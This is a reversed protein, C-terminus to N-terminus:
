ERRTRADEIITQIKEYLDDLGRNEIENSAIQMLDDVYDSFNDRWNEFYWDINKDFKEVQAFVFNGYVWDLDDGLIITKMYDYVFALAEKVIDKGVKKDFEAAPTSVKLLLALDFLTLGDRKFEESKLKSLHKYLLSTEFTIKGANNRETDFKKNMYNVLTNVVVPNIILADLVEYYHDCPTGNSVVFEETEVGNLQLRYM